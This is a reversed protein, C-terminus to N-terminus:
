LIKELNSKDLELYECGKVNLFRPSTKNNFQIFEKYIGSVLTKDLIHNAFMKKWETRQSKM